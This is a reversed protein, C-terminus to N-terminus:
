FRVPLARLSRITSNPRWEPRDTDLALRPLRELLMPLAVEAELRALPSGLCFHIGRGFALHHNANARRLDLRDPHPFIAPDRNAAGLLAVVTTGRPLRHGSLEVPANTRRGTRQVPSEFRLLEEVANAALSPDRRLTALQDPHRLLTLTGSAILNATTEHGAVLLLACMALVEDLTLRDGAEEAAILGALFDDHPAAPGAAHRAAILEAFYARLERQAAAADARVEPPRTADTINVIRSSWAHFRDHDAVPVGLLEAIVTAPLPFAFDAVLDARGAAPGTRATVAELLGSAIDAIRPRLAAVVKPTFARNVLARLRSHDPPDLMLMSRQMGSPAIPRGDDPDQKQFRPDSLITVVDAYRTCVEVNLEALHHVPSWRRLRGYLPYPDAIFEPRMVQRAVAASDLGAPDAAAPPTAADFPAAPPVAAPVAPPDPRANPEPSHEPAM